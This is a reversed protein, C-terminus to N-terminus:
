LQLPNVLYDGRNKLLYKTGEAVCTLPNQVVRVPVQIRRQIFEEIGQIMSCGGTLLIGHNFIDASLEPPTDKLVATILKVIEDFIPTLVTQVEQTSLTVWKPVGKVMDRGAYKNVVTKANEHLDGLEMKMRESTLEGIEVSQTKKVYKCIEDDMFSGAKRITRSIVVDGFSVIGVDTTGGGIDVVMVGKSKFIDVGAGLAGSKIEEEIFIDTIGMKKGLDIMVDHEIKTVESPCCIVCSAKSLNKETLNEIKGLVYTLLAKAARMDSIVGNRLPKVVAIKSHVKGLMRHADEGAAVIKGSERDFAIVSPENFIIGKKELFVLLNATGLDIGLGHNNKVNADSM